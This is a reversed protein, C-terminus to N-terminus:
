MDLGTLNYICKISLNPQEKYCNKMAQLFPIYGLSKQPIHQNHVQVYRGITDALHKASDFRAAALVAAIRQDFREIM